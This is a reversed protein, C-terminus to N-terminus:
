YTISVDIGTAGQPRALELTVDTATFPLPPHAYSDKGILQDAGSVGHWHVALGPYDNPVGIRNTLKFAIRVAGSETAAATFNTISVASPDAPAAKSAAAIPLVSGHNAAAPATAPRHLVVFAAGALLLLGGLAAYLRQSKLSPRAKAPLPMEDAAAVPAEDEMVLDRFKYVDVGCTPCPLRVQDDGFGLQVLHGGSCRFPSM